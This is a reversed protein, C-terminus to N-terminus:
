WERLLDSRDDSPIVFPNDNRTFQLGADAGQRRPGSAFGRLCGCVRFQLSVRRSRTGFGAKCEESPFIGSWGYLFQVLSRAIAELKPWAASACDLLPCRGLTALGLEATQALRSFLKETVQHGNAAPKETPQNALPVARRLRCWPLDTDGPFHLAPGGRGVRPQGRSEAHAVRAPHAIEDPINLNYAQGKKSATRSGVLVGVEFLVELGKQLVQRV